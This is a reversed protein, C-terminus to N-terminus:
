FLNSFHHSGSHDMITIAFINVGETTTLV